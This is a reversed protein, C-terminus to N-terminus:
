VWQQKMVLKIVREGRWFEGNTDRIDVLVRVEVTNKEVGHTLALEQEVHKSLGTHIANLETEANTGKLLRETNDKYKQKFQEELNM